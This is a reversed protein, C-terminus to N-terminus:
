EHWAVQPIVAALSVAPWHISGTQTPVPIAGSEVGWSLWDLFPEKGGKLLTTVSRDAETIIWLAKRYGHGPLQEDASGM